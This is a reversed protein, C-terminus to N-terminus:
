TGYLKSILRFKKRVHCLALISEGFSGRQFSICHLRQFLSQRILGNRCTKKLPHRPVKHEYVMMELNGGFSLRRGVKRLLYVMCHLFFSHVGFFSNSNWSRFVTYVGISSIFYMYVIEYICTCIIHISYSGTSYSTM